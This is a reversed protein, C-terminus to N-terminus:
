DAKGLLRDFADDPTGNASARRARTDKMWTRGAVPAKGAEALTREV